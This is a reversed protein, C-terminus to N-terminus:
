SIARHFPENILLNIHLEILKLTIQYLLDVSRATVEATVMLPRPRDGRHEDPM